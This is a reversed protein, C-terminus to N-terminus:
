VLQTISLRDWALLGALLALPWLWQVWPVASLEPVPRAELPEAEAERLVAAYLGQARAALDRRLPVPEASRSRFGSVLRHVKPVVELVLVMRVALRATDLGLWTLPRLWQVLAALLADRDTASLLLQVAAVMVILAGARDAGLVLGQVSPSGPGWAEILPEGPTWWGYVLLLSLLLWRTRAVMRGMGRLRELGLCTYLLLLGALSPLWGHPGGLALGLVLAMLTWIRILPHMLGDLRFLGAM